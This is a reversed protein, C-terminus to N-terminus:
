LVTDYGIFKGVPGFNFLGDQRFDIKYLTGSDISIQANQNTTMVEKTGDEKTVLFRLNKEMYLGTPVPIYFDAGAVATECVITTTKNAETGNQMEPFYFEEYSDKVTFVGNMYRDSSVALSKVKFESPMCIKLVGFLSYFFLNNDLSEAYMPVDPHGPVYAVTSPLEYHPTGDAHYLSSPYIAKKLSEEAVGNAGEVPTFIALKASEKDVQAEYVEGNVSIKDGDYWNISLGDIYTKTGDVNKIAGYLANNVPEPTSIGKDNICSSFCAAIFILIYLKKKM